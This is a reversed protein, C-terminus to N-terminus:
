IYRGQVFGVLLMVVRHHYAQIWVPRYEIIDGNMNLDGSM